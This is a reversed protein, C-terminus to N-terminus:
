QTKSFNKLHEEILKTTKNYLRFASVSIGVGGTLAIGISLSELGLNHNIITLILYSGICISWAIAFWILGFARNQQKSYQKLVLILLELPQKSEPDNKFDRITIKYDNSSLKIWWYISTGICLLSLCTTLTKTEM